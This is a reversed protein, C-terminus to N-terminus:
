PSTFALASGIGATGSSTAELARTNQAAASGVNSVTPQVGMSMTTRIEFYPLSDPLYDDISYTGDCNACVRNRQADEECLGFYGSM